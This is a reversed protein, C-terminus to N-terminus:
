SNPLVVIKRGLREVRLPGGPACLSDMVAAFRDSRLRWFRMQLERRTITKAARVFQTIRERVDAASAPDPSRFILDLSGILYRCLDIASQFHAEKVQESFDLAAYVMAIRLAHERYGLALHDVFDPRRGTQLSNGHAEQVQISFNTYLNQASAAVEMDTRGRDKWFEFTERVQKVVSNQLSSSPETFSSLPEKPDGPMFICCPGLKADVVEGVGQLTPAANASAILSVSPRLMAPNSGLPHFDWSDGHWGALASAVESRRSKEKHLLCRTVEEELRVILGPVESSNHEKLFRSLYRVLSKDPVLPELWEVNPAAEQILPRALHQITDDKLAYANRAVLVIFFNASLWFPQWARVRVTRGLGAGVALLFSALHYNDSAETSAAVADRYNKALCHWATEPASGFEAGQFEPVAKRRRPDLPRPDHGPQWAPHASRPKSSAESRFVYHQERALVRFKEEAIERCKIGLKECVHRRADPVITAVLMLDVPREPFRSRMAGMYDLLQDVALRPLRGHKIEIVLIGGAETEFILDTRGVDSRTQREFPSLSEGLLKESHMWLLDEMEREIMYATPSRGAWRM